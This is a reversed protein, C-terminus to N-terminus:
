QLKVEEFIRAWRLYTEKGKPTASYVEHGDREDRAALGNSFLIQMYGALREYNLNAAQALRSPGRPEQMLLDLLEMVIFLTQRRRM